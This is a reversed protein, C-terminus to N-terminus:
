GQLRLRIRRQSPSGTPIGTPAGEGPAEEVLRTHGGHRAEVEAVVLRLRM